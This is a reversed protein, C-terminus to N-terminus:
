LALLVEKFVSTSEIGQPPPLFGTLSASIAVRVPTEM